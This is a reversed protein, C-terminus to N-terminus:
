LFHFTVVSFAFEVDWVVSFAFELPSSVGWVVSFAFESIGSGSFHLNQLGPVVSFAFERMWFWQFHLNQSSIM